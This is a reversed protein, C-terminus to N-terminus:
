SLARYSVAEAVRSKTCRKRHFTNSRGGYLGSRASLSELIKPGQLPLQFTAIDTGIVFNLLSYEHPEVVNIIIEEKGTEIRQYVSQGFVKVVM